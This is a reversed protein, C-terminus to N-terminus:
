AAESGRATTAVAPDPVPFMEANRGGTPSSAIVAQFLHTFASLARQLSVHQAAQRSQLAATRLREPDRAWASLCEALLAGDARELVTGCAYDRILQAAESQRPGLFICPRGVSLIGSVKSPVVLGCLDERMSALHVDAAALSQGLKERPQAPLFRANRLQLETAREKVWPLRPGGGVFVFLVEPLTRDLQHAADLIAEFPHALGLNGSYMVVFRGNLDHEQRFSTVEHEAAALTLSSQHIESKLWQREASSSSTRVGTAVPSAHGWNPIVDIQECAVGRAVLRAKMCHGIAIIHDSRRLAWTSLGRLLRALLGNKRLVGLEEALEPYVDQAWHVLKSRKCWKLIPGLVLQLPPDTLTVVVDARPLQLARCLLLPYLSLYSLARCFHNARTFPLGGVREVLVGAITESKPAHPSPCSTLVTVPCGAKALEPALEALLQGTAGDLPPYVRNLFFISKMM